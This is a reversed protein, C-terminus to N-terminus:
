KIKLILMLWVTCVGSIAMVVTEIMSWNLKQCICVDNEIPPDCNGKGRQIFLEKGRRTSGAGLQSVELAPM